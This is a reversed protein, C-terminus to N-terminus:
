TRPVEHPVLWLVAYIAYLLLPWPTLPPVLLLVLWFSLVAFAIWRHRRARARQSAADAMSTLDGRRAELDQV